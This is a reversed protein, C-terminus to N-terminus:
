RCRTRMMGNACDAPLRQLIQAAHPKRSGRQSSGSHVVKPFDPGRHVATPFAGSAASPASRTGAAVDRLRIWPEWVPGDPHDSWPGGLETGKKALMGCVGDFRKFDNDSLSDLWDRVEPELQFDHLRERKTLNGPMCTPASDPGYKSIPGLDKACGWRSVRGWVCLTRDATGRGPVATLQVPRTAPGCGSRGSIARVREDRDEPKRGAEGATRAPEGSEAMSPIPHGDRSAALLNGSM